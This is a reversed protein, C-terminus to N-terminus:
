NNTIVKLVSEKLRQREERESEESKMLKLVMTSETPVLLDRAEIRGKTDRSLLKFTKTKRRYEEDEDEEEFDKFIFITVIAFLL